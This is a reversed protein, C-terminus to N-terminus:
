RGGLQNARARAQASLSVQGEAKYVAALDGWANPDTPDVETAEVLSAEAAAYNRLGAEDVGQLLLFMPNYPDIHLEAAVLQESGAADGSIELLTARYDVVQEDGAVDAARPVWQDAYAVASSDGALAVAVFQHLVGAPLDPDWPLLDRALEFDHDAVALRGQAVAVDGLRLWVQAIAAAVFCAALLACGIPILRALWMDARPRSAPTPAAALLSGGMVAAPITTGPSTFHFLLAALYGGLGALSGLVWADPGNGLDRVANRTALYALGLAPLLLLIGGAMLAQLLLDHPSAPPNAPGITKQWDLSHQGVIANEFQSPGVGLIPHRTFLSLSERWLITRGKVTQQSLPSLGLVRNRSQPIALVLGVFATTAGTFVLNFRRRSAVRHGMVVGVILIVVLLGVMAGRSGSLAVTIAAAVAGVVSLRRRSTLADVLLPAAYLVALAGEDSANGLLSGPRAVNASLPRLGFSETVAVLAVALVTVAMAAYATRIAPESRNPGLLRSGSAGAMVYVALILVGEQQPERGLLATMPSRATVASIALVVGAAGLMVGAPRMLRGAPPSRFAVAVGAAAVVLKGFVFRNLAGPVIVAPVALLLTLAAAERKM